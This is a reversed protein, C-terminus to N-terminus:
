PWPIGGTLHLPERVTTLTAVDSDVDAVRHTVLWRGTAVDPLVVADGPRAEHDSDVLLTAVSEPRGVDLLVDVDRVMGEEEVAEHVTATEMLWADTGVQWVGSADVFSRVGLSAVLGWAGARPLAQPIRESTPEVRFPVGAGEALRAVLAPLTLSGAPVALTPVHARLRAVTEDEWTLRVRRATTWVGAFVWRRGDDTVAGSAGALLRPVLEEDPEVDVSVYSAGTASETVRVPTTPEVDVDVGVLELGELIM